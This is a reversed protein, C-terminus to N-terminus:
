SWFECGSGSFYRSYNSWMSQVPFKDTYTGTTLTVTSNYGAGGNCKDGNEGSGRTSDDWGEYGDGAGVWPDTITEAYEHSEVITVGDLVNGTVSNNGCTNSGADPMYPLSTFMVTTQANFKTWNHWACTTGGKAIFRSDGHGRSLAVVYQTNISYDAFHAAARLAEAALDTGTPTSPIVSNDFWIGKLQNPNNRIFSATSPCSFTGSYCGKAYGTQINDWASGGIGALFWYLRGQVNYPDATGRTWDGWYVIYVRPDTQVPGGRYLLYDTSSTDGSSAGENEQADYNPNEPPVKYHQIVRQDAHPGAAPPASPAAQAATAVALAAACLILATPFACSIRRPNLHLRTM